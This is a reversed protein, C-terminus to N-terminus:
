WSSVAGRVSVASDGTVWALTRLTSLITHLLTVDAVASIQSKYDVWKKEGNSFPKGLVIKVIDVKM